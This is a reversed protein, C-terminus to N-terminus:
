GRKNWRNAAEEMMANNYDEMTEYDNPLDDEVHPGECGCEGCYVYADSIGNYYTFSTAVDVSKSNCFPCNKLEIQM